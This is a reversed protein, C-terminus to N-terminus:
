YTVKLYCANCLIKEPREPAYTTQLKIRCNTCERDWLQRPNRLSLRKLHRCNPCHRPVPITHSRYFNLEQSIIRYNKECHDCTLIQQTVDDSIDKINASLVIKEGQYRNTIDDDKWNAGKEIATDKDLPFYDQALTENYGFPSLSMPFFEGWEPGTHLVPSRRMHEIIRPVLKEYEEKSYQKNLVCYQKQRLGICGFCDQIGSGLVCYFINTGGSWINHCFLANHIRDGCCCL